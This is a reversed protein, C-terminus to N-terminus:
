QVRAGYIKQVSQIDRASLKADNNYTSNCYNMVSEPDYPTLMTLDKGTTGTGQQMACEGPTDARDQEHAFGIAHGFEHVAISKICLERKGESQACAPGWSRFTFNLEMGERKKNLNKGFFKVRPGTDLAVIRIGSNSEACKQWGTFDIRSHKQWSEKVATQIWQTEATFRTLADHEWCVPIQTNGAANAPWRTNFFFYGFDQNELRVRGVGTRQADSSQAFAQADCLLITTLCIAIAINSRKSLM